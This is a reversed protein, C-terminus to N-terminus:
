PFFASKKLTAGLSSLKAGFEKELVRLIKEHHFEDGRGDHDQGGRSSLVSRL